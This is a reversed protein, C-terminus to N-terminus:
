TFSSKFVYPNENKKAVKAGVKGTKKKSAAAKKKKKTPSAFGKIPSDSTFTPDMMNEFGEDQYDIEFTDEDVAEGMSYEQNQMMQALVENYM